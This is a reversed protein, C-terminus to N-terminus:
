RQQRMPIRLLRVLLLVILEALQIRDLQLLQLHIHLIPLHLTKPSHSYKSLPKACSHNHSSLSGCTTFRFLSGAKNYVGKIKRDITNSASRLSRHNQIHTHIYQFSPRVSHLTDKVLSYQNKHQTNHLASSVENRKTGITRRKRRAKRM